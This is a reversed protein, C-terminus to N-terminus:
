NKIKIKEIGWHLLAGLAINLAFACLTYFKVHNQLGCLPMLIDSLSFWSVNLLYIELSNKGVFGLVKWVPSIPIKEFCLCLLLCMPVTTFLFLHCYPFSRDIGWAIAHNALYFYVIGLVAILIWFLIDTWRIKKGENVWFGLLVGLAFVPIRYFFGMYDWYGEYTLIQCVFLSLLIVLFTLMKKRKREKLWAVYPPVLLYFMMIGAVYWNFAGNGGVWFYLMTSNWLLACLSAGFYFIYFVTFPFMVIYYAPLIRLFRRKLFAGYEQRRSLLSMTLGMASLLIFVDVGGFGLSFIGDLITSHLTFGAGSAHFLMVWLMAFGMLESRFRSLIRYEM